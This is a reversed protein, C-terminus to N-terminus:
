QQNGFSVTTQDIIDRLGVFDNQDFDPDRQLHALLRDDINRLELLTERLGQATRLDPTNRWNHLEGAISEIFHQLDDPSFGIVENYSFVIQSVNPDYGAYFLCNRRKLAPFYEMFEKVTFRTNANFFLNFCDRNREYFDDHLPADNGSNWADFLLKIVKGYAPFRWKSKDFDKLFRPMEKKMFVTFDHSHREVMSRMTEALHPYYFKHQREFFYDGQGRGIHRVTMLWWLRAIYVAGDDLMRLGKCFSQAFGALDPAVGGRRARYRYAIMLPDWHDRFNADFRGFRDVQDAFYWGAMFIYGCPIENMKRADVVLKNRYSNLYECINAKQANVNLRNIYESILQRKGPDETNLFKTIADINMVDLALRFDHLGDDPLDPEGGIRLFFGSSVVTYRADHDRFAAFCILGGAYRDGLDFHLTEICRGCDDVTHSISEPLIEDPPVEQRVAPYVIIVKECKSHCHSIFYSLEYSSPGGVQTLRYSCGNAFSTRVPSYKHFNYFALRDGDQLVISCYDSREEFLETDQSCHRSLTEKRHKPYFPKCTLGRVLRFECDESTNAALRLRSFDEDALELINKNGPKEQRVPLFIGKEKNQLYIGQRVIPFSFHYGHCDLEAVDSNEAIHISYQESANDSGYFKISATRSEGYGIPVYLDDQVVDPIFTVPCNVLRVGDREIQLRGKCQWLFDEAAATDKPFERRVGDDCVYFIGIDPAGAQETLLPASREFFLRGVGGNRIHRFREEKDIWFYRDCGADYTIGNIMIQEADAPVTFFGNTLELERSCEETVCQVTIRDHVPSFVKYQRGIDLVANDSVVGGDASLLIHDQECLIQPTVDSSTENDGHIKVKRVHSIEAFPSGDGGPELFVCGDRGWGVSWVARWGGDATREYRCFCVPRSTSFAQSFFQFIIMDIGNADHFIGKEPLYLAIRGDQLRIVPMTDDLEALSEADTCMKEIINQAVEPTLMRGLDTSLVDDVSFPQNFRRYLNILNLFFDVTDAKSLMNEGGDNDHLYGRFMDELVANINEPVSIWGWGHNRIAAGIRDAFQVYMKGSYRRITRLFQRRGDTSKLLVVSFRNVLESEFDPRAQYFANYNFGLENAYRGLTGVVSPDQTQSDRYALALFKQAMSPHCNRIRECLQNWGPSRSLELSRWFAFWINM